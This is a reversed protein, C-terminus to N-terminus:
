PKLGFSRRIARRQTPSLGTRNAPRAGSLLAIRACKDALEVLDLASGFNPGSAAIGHAPWVIAQCRALARATARALNVSGPLAFPLATLRDELLVPAETHVRALLDPLHRHDVLLSLAVLDTPHTHLFVRDTPRASVLAAHAALHAALESSPPGGNLRGARPGVVTVTALGQAPAAAVDRMRVGARKIALCRGVLSPVAVPLDILSGGRAASASVRVSLNGANAEAWGREVLMRAAAAVGDLWPRVLTAAYQNARM